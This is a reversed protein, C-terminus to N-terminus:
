PEHGDWPGQETVRVYGTDLDIETKMYLRMTAPHGWMEGEILFTLTNGSAHDRGTLPRVRVTERLIRPEFDIIAQRLDKELSQAQVNSLARGALNPIGYNIVSRAVLPYDVLDVSSGLGGTNFLWRLHRLVDERLKLMSIVRQERSEEKKDPQDDTLRYLLSPQLREKPALEAM